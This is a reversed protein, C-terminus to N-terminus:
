GSQHYIGKPLMLAVLKVIANYYILWDLHIMTIATMIFNVRCDYFKILHVLGLYIPLCNISNSVTTHYFSMYSFHMQTPYHMQTFRM